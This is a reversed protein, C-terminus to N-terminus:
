HVGRSREKNREVKEQQRLDEEHGYNRFLRIMGCTYQKWVISSEQTAEWLGQVTGRVEGTETEGGTVDVSARM